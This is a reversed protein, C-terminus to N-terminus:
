DLEYKINQLQYTIPIINNSSVFSVIFRDQEKSGIIGITKNYYPKKNKQFTLYSQRM